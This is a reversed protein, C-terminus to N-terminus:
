CFSPKPLIMKIQMEHVSARDEIEPKIFKDGWTSTIWLCNVEYVSDDDKSCMV